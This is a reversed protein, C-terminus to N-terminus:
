RVFPEPYLFLMPVSMFNAYLLQPSFAMLEALPLLCHLHAPLGPLPLCFASNAVKLLWVPSCNFSM